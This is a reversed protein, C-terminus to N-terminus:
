SASRGPRLVMGLLALVAIQGTIVAPWILPLQADFYKQPGFSVLALLGAVVALVRGAKTQAPGLIWAAAAASLSMALFPAIGFGPTAAPPHPATKAYLATLMVVQLITLTALAATAPRENALSENALRENKTM